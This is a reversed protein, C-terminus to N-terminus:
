KKAAAIAADLAQHAAQYASVMQSLQEATIDQGSSKAQQILSAINSAQSVLEILLQLAIDITAASM